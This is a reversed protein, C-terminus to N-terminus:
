GVWYGVSVQTRIKSGDATMARIYANQRAHAIEVTSARFYKNLTLVAKRPTVLVLTLKIRYRM